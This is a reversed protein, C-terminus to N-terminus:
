TQGLTAPDPSTFVIAGDPALTGGEIVHATGPAPMDDVVVQGPLSGHTAGLDLVLKGNIFIFVDDNGHFKVTLPPAYVFLLRSEMTFWFNHAAGKIGTIWQGQEMTAGQSPPYDYQDGTCAAFPFWYPWLNC